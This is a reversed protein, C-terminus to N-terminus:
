TTVQMAAVATQPLLREISTLGGIVVMVLAPSLLWDFTPSV